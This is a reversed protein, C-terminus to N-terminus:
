GWFDLHHQHVSHEPVCYFLNLVTSQLHQIVAFLLITYQLDCMLTWKEAERAPLM